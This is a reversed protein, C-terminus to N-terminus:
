HRKPRTGTAEALAEFGIAGNIYDRLIAKGTDIDGEILRNMAEALLAQKFAPERAMRDTVLSKFSRTLAM